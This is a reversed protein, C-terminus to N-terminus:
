FIEFNTTKLEITNMGNKVRAGPLKMVKLHLDRASISLVSCRRRGHKRCPFDGATLTFHPLPHPARTRGEPPRPARPPPRSPTRRRSTSRRRPPRAVISTEPPDSRHHSPRLAEGFRPLTIEPILLPRPHGSLPRGLHTAALPLWPPAASYTAQNTPM